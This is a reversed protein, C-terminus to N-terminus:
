LQWLYQLKLFYQRSTQRYLTDAAPDATGRFLKRNPEIRPM